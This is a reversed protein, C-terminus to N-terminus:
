VAEASYTLEQAVPASYVYETATGEYYFEVAELVTSKRKAAEIQKKFKDILSQSSLPYSTTVKFHYPKGGYEYWELVTGDGFTNIVIQEVAWKTGRHEKILKATKITDRKAAIDMTDEYWDVDLEWALEDLMAEDLNDVQDWVRLSKVKAGPVKIIADVAAALAADAPDSRMFRPLLKASDPNQIKMGM